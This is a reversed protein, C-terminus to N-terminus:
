RLLVLKSLSQHFVLTTSENTTTSVNLSFGIQM